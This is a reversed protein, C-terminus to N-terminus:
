FAQGISFYVQFSDDSSRPNLPVGIDARIPGLPSYYRLGIGAALQVGESFTPVVEEAVSGAAAFVALGFDGYVQARLEAAVEMASLGGTPENKSDM